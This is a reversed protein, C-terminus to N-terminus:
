PVGGPQGSPEPQEGQTLPPKEEVLYLKTVAIWQISPTTDKWHNYYDHVYRKGTWKYMTAPVNYM